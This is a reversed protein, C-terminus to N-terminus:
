TLALTVMAAHDFDSPENICAILDLGFDGHRCPRFRFAHNVDRHPCRASLPMRVLHVYIIKGVGGMIRQQRLHAVLKALVVPRRTVALSHTNGANEAPFGNGWGVGGAINAAVTRQVTM